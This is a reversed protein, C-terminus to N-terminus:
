EPRSLKADFIYHYQVNIGSKELKLVNDPEQKITPLNIFSCNYIITFKEGNRPNIYQMKSEQGKKLTVTIGSRDVKILDNSELKYKKRLISNLKLFCWYEYLQALGKQLISFLDSTIYLGKLLMLFMLYNRYVDKYGPAMQMVLSSHEIQKLEGVSQLFSHKIYHRLFKTTKEIEAIVKTDQNQIRECYQQKFANLKLNLQQLM